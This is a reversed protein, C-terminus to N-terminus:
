FVRYKCLLSHWLIYILCRSNYENSIIRMIKIYNYIAVSSFNQSERSSFKKGPQSRHCSSPSFYETAFNKGQLADNLMTRWPPFKTGYLWTNLHWWRKSVSRRATWAVSSTKTYLVDNSTIYKGLFRAKRIRGHWFMSHRLM